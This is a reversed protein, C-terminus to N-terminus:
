WKEPRYKKSNEFRECEANFVKMLNVVNFRYIEVKGSAIQLVSRSYPEYDFTMQNSIILRVILNVMNAINDAEIPSADASFSMSLDYIWEAMKTKFDEIKKEDVAMVVM